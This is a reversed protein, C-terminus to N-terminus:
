MLYSKRSSSVPSGTIIIFRGVLAVDEEPPSSVRGNSFSEKSKNSLSSTWPPCLVCDNYNTQESYELKANGAYMGEYMIYM